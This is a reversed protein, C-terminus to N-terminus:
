DERTMRAPNMRTTPIIQDSLAMGYPLYSARNQVGHATCVGYAYGDDNVDLGEKDTM